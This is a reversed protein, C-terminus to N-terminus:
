TTGGLSPSKVGIKVKQEAKLPGQKKREARFM